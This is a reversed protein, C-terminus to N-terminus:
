ALSRAILSAGSALLLLAVERMLAAGSIRRFIHGAAWLGLLGAPVVALAYLWVRADLPNERLWIFHANIYRYLGDEKPAVSTLAELIYQHLRARIFQVTFKFLEANNKFYHLVLPRSVGAARAVAELRFDEFACQGLVSIAAEAIRVRASQSKSLTEGFCSGLIVRYRPDSTRSEKRAKEQPKLRRM